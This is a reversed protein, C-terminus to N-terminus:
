LTEEITATDPLDDVYRDRDEANKFWRTFRKQGSTPLTFTVAFTFAAAIRAPRVFREPDTLYNVHRKM